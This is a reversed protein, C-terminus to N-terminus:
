EANMMGRDAARQIRAAMTRAGDGKSRAGSSRSGWLADGAESGKKPGSRLVFGESQGLGNGAGSATPRKSGSDAHRRIKGQNRQLRELSGVLRAATVQSSICTRGDGSKPEAILAQGGGRRFRISLGAYSPSPCRSRTCTACRHARRVARALAQTSRVQHRLRRRARQTYSSGASASLSLVGAGPASGSSRGVAHGMLRSTAKRFRTRPCAEPERTNPPWRRAAVALISTEKWASTVPATGLCLSAPAASHRWTM